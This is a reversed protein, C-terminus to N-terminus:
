SRRRSPIQETGDAEWDARDESGGIATVINDCLGDLFTKRDVITTKLGKHQKLSDALNSLLRESDDQLSLFGHVTTESLTEVFEEIHCGFQINQQDESPNPM